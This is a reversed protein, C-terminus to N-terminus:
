NRYVEGVYRFDTTNNMYTRMTVFKRTYLWKWVKSKSTTSPPMEGVDSFYHEGFREAVTQSDVSPLELFEKDLLEFLRTELDKKEQKKDDQKNSWDLKSKKFAAQTHAHKRIEVKDEETIDPSMGIEKEKIAYGAWCYWNDVDKKPPALKTSHGWHPMVVQKQKRLAAITKTSKFHIHYHPIGKKGLVEDRGVVWTTWGFLAIIELVTKNHVKLECENIKLGYYNPQKKVVMNELTSQKGKKKPVREPIPPVRMEGSWEVNDWDIEVERDDVLLELPM